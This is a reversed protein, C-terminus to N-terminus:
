KFEKKFLQGGAGILETKINLRKMCAYILAQNSSVVPKGIAKEIASLAELARYDTCSIVVAQADEHNAKLAMTYADRPTLANQEISTLEEEFGLQNVVKIGCQEIFDVSEDALKKVYPSTFAGRELGLAKMAEILAGATTVAPCGSQQSIKECFVKDFAPGESLTASTCGYAIVDVKADMLLQLNQSLSQHAFRRMETSDPIANIDYGGSRSIHVTVSKPILMQFDTEVNTNSSPVILGIRKQRSHKSLHEIRNPINKDM